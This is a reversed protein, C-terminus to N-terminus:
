AVEEHFSAYRKGIGRPISVLSTSFFSPIRRSSGSALRFPAEPQSRRHPPRLLFPSKIGPWSPGTCQTLTAGAPPAARVPALVPPAFGSSLVSVAHATMLACRERSYQLHWPKATGRTKPIKMQGHGHSLARFPMLCSQTPEFELGVRGSFRAASMVGSCIALLLSTTQNRRLRLGWVFIAAGPTRRSSPPQYPRSHFLSTRSAYPGSSCVSPPGDTKPQVFQNQRTEDAAV